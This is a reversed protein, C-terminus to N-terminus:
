TVRVASRSPWQQRQWNDDCLGGAIASASVSVPPRRAAPRPGEALRHRHGALFQGDAPRQLHRRFAAPEDTARDVLHLLLRGVPNASRRCYDLVEAYSAYRTKVVDQAFADLLDRFLQLPLKWEAIERALLSSRAPSRNEVRSATSSLTTNTWASCASQRQPTARTPSTTPPAHSAISPKSRAACGNPLLLSAVPFNEYHDVPMPLSPPNCARRHLSTRRLPSSSWVLPSLVLGTANVM